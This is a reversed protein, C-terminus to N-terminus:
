DFLKDVSRCAPGGDWELAAAVDKESAAGYLLRLSLFCRSQVRVPPRYLCWPRRRSPRTGGRQVCMVLRKWSKWTRRRRSSKMRGTQSRWVPKFLEDRSNLEQAEKLLGAIDLHAGLLHRWGSRLRDKTNAFRHAQEVLPLTFSRAQSWLQPAHGHDEGLFVSSCCRLRKVSM